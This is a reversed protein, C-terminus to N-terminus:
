EPAQDEDDVSVDQQHSPVLRNATWGRMMIRDFGEIHLPDNPGKLEIINQTRFYAFPTGVLKPMNEPQCEAVLDITRARHFVEYETEVHLGLKELEDRLFAKVNEDFPETINPESM